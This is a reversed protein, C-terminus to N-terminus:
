KRGSERWQELDPYDTAFFLRSTSGPANPASRDPLKEALDRILDARQPDGALNNWEHSDAARDYLEESGDFYRIYRYPGSRLSYNDRGFTTVAGRQTDATPDELLPRLSQGDLHSPAPLGALDVLTPYLDILSVPTKCVGGPETVGPAVILLPARAAEDWLSFKEWHKKEGLHFGHDSWLVVITEDGGPSADLAEIVRGLLDDIYSACALYAQLYEKEVGLKNMQRDWSTRAVYHGMEPVDDLDSALLPIEPLGDLPHRDFYEPRAILPLHPRLFGVALFTPQDGGTEGLWAVADAAHRTDSIEEMPTGIPGFYNYKPTAPIKVEEGEIVDGHGSYITNQKSPLYADWDSPRTGHAGHHIKGSGLTRYGHERFWGPLTPNEQVLPIEWMPQFGYIGTTYPQMGSLIAARSPGCIPAPCQADTFRVGRKALRDLNPMIPVDYGEQLSGLDRLDDIAIFLVSPPGSPAAAHGPSAAALGALAGLAPLAARARSLTRHLFGHQKM